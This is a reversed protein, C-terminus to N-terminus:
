KPPAIHRLWELPILNYLALMATIGLLIPLLGDTGYNRIFYVLRIARVRLFQRAKLLLFRRKYGRMMQRLERAARNYLTADQALHFHDFSLPQEGRVSIRLSSIVSRAENERQFVSDQEIHRLLSAIRNFGGFEFGPFLGELRRMYLNENVGAFTGIREIFHHESALQHSLPELNKIDIFYYLAFTCFFYLLCLSMLFVFVRSDFNISLGVIPIKDISVDFARYTIALVSVALLNRKANRTANSLPDTSM